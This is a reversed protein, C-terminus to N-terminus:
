TRTDRRPPAFLEKVLFTNGGEEVTSVVTKAMRACFGLPTQGWHTYETGGHVWQPFEGCPEVQFHLRQKKKIALLSTTKWIM